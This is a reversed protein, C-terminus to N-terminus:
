LLLVLVVLRLPLSQGGVAPVASAGRQQAANALLQEWAQLLIDPGKVHVLNGVFLAIRVKGEVALSPLGRLSDSSGTVPVGPAALHRAAEEKPRYRFLDTDVGNAVVHIKRSEVGAAVLREALGRWVCVIGAAKGCADVIAQRRGPSTLHFTDSGQVMIWSPIGHESALQTAAVGDPYLWAAYVAEAGRIAVGLSRMSLRYTRPMWDRGLVPLYFVPLYRTRLGRKESRRGRGESRQSGVESRVDGFVPERWARIRPWRWVRWEPVLCFNLLSPVEAGASQQVLTDMARFLQANFMGLQPHDPRPYLNSITVLMIRFFDSCKTGAAAWCVCPSM